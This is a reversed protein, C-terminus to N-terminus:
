NLSRFPYYTKLFSLKKPLKTVKKYFIEISATNSNGSGETQYHYNVRYPRLMSQKIYVNLEYRMTFM